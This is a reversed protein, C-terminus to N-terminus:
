CPERHPSQNMTLSHRLFRSEYLLTRIVDSIINVTLFWLKEANADILLQTADLYEGDEYFDVDLRGFQVSLVSLDALFKENPDEDCGMVCLTRAPFSLVPQWDIDTRAADVDNQECGMFSLLASTNGTALIDRLPEPDFRCFRFTLDFLKDALAGLCALILSRGYLFFSGGKIDLSVLPCVSFNNLLYLTIVGRHHDHSAVDIELYEVFKLSHAPPLVLGHIGEGEGVTFMIRNFLNKHSRYTWSRAVLACNKLTEIGCAAAQEEDVRSGVLPSRHVWEHGSGVDDIIM